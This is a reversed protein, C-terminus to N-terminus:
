SRFLSTCALTLRRKEKM